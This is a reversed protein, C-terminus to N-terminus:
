EVVYCAITKVNGKTDVYVKYDGVQYIDIANNHIMFTEVAVIKTGDAKVETVTVTLSNMNGNIKTVLAAATANIRWQAYVTINSNVITASTFSKGKGDPQTNWEIFTHNFRTPEAPMNANFSSGKGVACAQNAPSGSNGDFTVMVDVSQFVVTAPESDLYKKYAGYTPDSGSYVTDGKARVYVTRALNGIVPEVSSYPGDFADSWEMTAPDYGTITRTANNPLVAPALRQVHLKFSDPSIIYTATISIGLATADLFRSGNGLWTSLRILESSDLVYQYGFMDLDLVTAGNVPMFYFEIIDVTTAPSIHLEETVQSLSFKAGIVGGTGNRIILQSSSINFNETLPQCYKAFEARNTASKGSFLLNQDFHPNDKSYAYPAVRDEDFSIAIGIGHMVLEKDQASGGHKIQVTATILKSVPDQEFCTIFRTNADAILDTGNLAMLPFDTQESALATPIVALSLIFVLAIALLYKNKKM